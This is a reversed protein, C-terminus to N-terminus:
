RNNIINSHTLALTNSIEGPYDRPVPVPYNEVTRFKTFPVDASEKMKLKVKERDSTDELRPESELTNEQSRSNDQYKNQNESRLGFKEDFQLLV